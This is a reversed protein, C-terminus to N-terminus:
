GPDMELMAQIWWEEEEGLMLVPIKQICRYKGSDLIPDGPQGFSLSDANSRVPLLTNVPVGGM